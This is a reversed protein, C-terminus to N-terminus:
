LQRQDLKLNLPKTERYTDKDLIHEIVNVNIKARGLQLEQSFYKSM